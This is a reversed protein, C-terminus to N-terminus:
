PTQYITATHYHHILGQNAPSLGSCCVFSRKSRVNVLALVAGWYRGTTAVSADPSFFFRFISDAANFLSVRQDFDRQHDESPEGLELGHRETDMVAHVASREVAEVSSYLRRDKFTTKTLMQNELDVFYQKITENEFFGLQATSSVTNTFGGLYALM